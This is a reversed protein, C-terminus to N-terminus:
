SGCCIHYSDCEDECTCPQPGCVGRGAKSCRSRSQCFAQNMSEEGLRVCIVIPRVKMGKCCWRGVMVTFSQWCFLVLFCSHCRSLMRGSSKSVAWNTSTLRCLYYILGRQASRYSPQFHYRAPAGQLATVAILWALLVATHRWDDEVGEWAAAWSEM